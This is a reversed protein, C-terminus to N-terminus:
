KIILKKGNVIYLGKKLGFTSTHSANTPQTIQRGQLDYITEDKIPLENDISLINTITEDDVMLRADANAPVEFYARMAKITKTADSSPYGLKNDSTLFRHTKDTNLATPSYVGVFSYNNHTIKQAATARLTVDDYEPNTIDNDPKVLYPKGAEISNADKFKMITGNLEDYERLSGTISPINFPVTFTNWHDKSLTRKLRITAHEIDADPSVFAEDEDIVYVVPKIDAYDVPLITNNATVIGSVDVLANDYIGSVTASSGNRVDKVTVWNGVYSNIADTAIDPIPVIAAETVPAALALHNTNTSTTATLKPLGNVTQKKGVIWGAVHQNHNPTPNFAASGLDVCLTGTNDRLYMKGDQKHLVRANADDAIFLRVEDNEDKAKFAAISNVTEGVTYTRTVEPSAVNGVYAKAKVTTTSTIKVNSAMTVINPSSTTPSTGDITYYATTLTSPSIHFLAVAGETTNPWFLFNDTLTPAPVTTVTEIIKVNDLFGRWGTFTLSFTPATPTITVTYSKWKSIDDETKDEGNQLTINIDGSLDAGTATILLMNTDSAWGVAEFTLIISNNASVYSIDPTTCIGNVKSSGTGTGFKICQYGGNIKNDQTGSWGDNDYSPKNNAINGSYQTSAGNKGKGGKGNNTDFTEDFLKLTEQAWAGQTIAFCCLLLSIYLKRM